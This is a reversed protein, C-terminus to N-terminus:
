AKVSSPYSQRELPNTANKGALRWEHQIVRLCAVPVGRNRDSEIFSFDLSPTMFTNESGITSNRATEAPTPKIIKQPCNIPVLRYVKDSQDRKERAKGQKSLM